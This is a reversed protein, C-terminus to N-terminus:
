MRYRNDRLCSVLRTGSKNQVILRNDVHIALGLRALPVKTRRMQCQRCAATAYRRQLDPYNYNM